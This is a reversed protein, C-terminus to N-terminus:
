LNVKNVNAFEGFRKVAENNYAVAAEEATKFNGLHYQKSKGDSGRISLYARFRSKDVSVGKYGTTSARSLKQNRINERHTCVRLNKRRNDIGNGNIHDVEYGRTVALLVRHMSYYRKKKGKKKETREAYGKVNFQWKWQNLFEFDDNDVLAYKGKTLKIKKM